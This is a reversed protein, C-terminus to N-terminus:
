PEEPLPERGALQDLTVGFYDALSILVPLTPDRLNKEYRQYTMASIELARAVTERSVNKKKRLAFLNQALAEM